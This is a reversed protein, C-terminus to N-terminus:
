RKIFLKKVIKKEFVFTASSSARPQGDTSTGGTEMATGGSLAWKCSSEVRVHGAICLSGSQCLFKDVIILLYRTLNGCASSRLM